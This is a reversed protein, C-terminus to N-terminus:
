RPAATRSMRIDLPTIQVVAPRSQPSPRLRIPPWLVVDLQYRALLRPPGAAM